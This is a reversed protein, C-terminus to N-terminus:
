MQHSKTGATSDTWWSSQGPVSEAKTGVAPLASPDPTCTFARPALISTVAMGRQMAWNFLHPGLPFISAEEDESSNM